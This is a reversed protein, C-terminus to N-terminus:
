NNPCSCICGLFKWFIILFIEQLICGYRCPFSQDMWHQNTLHVSHPFKNKPCDHCSQSYIVYSKWKKVWNKCNEFFNFNIKILDSAVINDGNPNVNKLKMNIGCKVLEPSNLLFQVKSIGLHDDLSWTLIKPDNFFWWPIGINLLLM